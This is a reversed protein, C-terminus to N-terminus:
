LWPVASPPKRFDIVPYNRHFYTVYEFLSIQQNDLKLSDLSLSFSVLLLIVMNLVTM